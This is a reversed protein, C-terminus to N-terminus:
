YDDDEADFAYLSTDTEEDPAQIWEIGPENKSEDDLSVSLMYYLSSVVIGLLAGGVVDVPHHRFDFIRSVGVYSGYYLPVTAFLFLLQKIVSGKFRNSVYLLYLVLFFCGSIALGSAGSPFSVRGQTINAMQADASCDENTRIVKDFNELNPEVPDESGYGICRQYFDPRLWGVHVKGFAVLLDTLEMSAFVGTSFRIAALFRNLYDGYAVATLMEILFIMPVFILAFILYMRGTDVTDSAAHGYWLSTDGLFFPRLVPGDGELKAKILRSGILCVLFSLIGARGVHVWVTKLRSFSSM